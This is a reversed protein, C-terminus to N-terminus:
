AITRGGCCSCSPRVRKLGTYVRGTPFFYIRSGLLYGRKPKFTRFIM